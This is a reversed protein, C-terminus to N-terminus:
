HCESRENRHGRNRGRLFWVRMGRESSLTFSTVMRCMRVRAAVNAIVIAVACVSEGVGVSSYRIMGDSTMEDAIFSRRAENPYSSVVSGIGRGM